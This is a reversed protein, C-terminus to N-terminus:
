KVVMKTVVSGQRRIVLQGAEPTAIRIGQLNYYIPESDSTGETLSSVGSNKNIKLAPTLTQVQAAGSEAKVSIRVDIWGETDIDAMSVNYHSGFGPTFDGEPDAEVTLSKFDKSGTPAWEVEVSAPATYDYYVFRSSSSGSTRNYKLTSAYLSMTAEAATEFRDTVTGDAAKFQMMTLTPILGAYTAADYTLTGEVLGPLENDILINNTSFNIEYVGTKGWTVADPFDKRQSCVNEGDISVTVKNTDTGILDANPYKAAMNWSDVDLSEGLRGVYGFSVQSGEPVTVLAPTCNGVIGKAPTGTFEPNTNEFSRGSQTYFFNPDLVPNLGLQKVGEPSWTVPMAKIGSDAGAVVSGTPFVVFALPTDFDEPQYFGVKGSNFGAGTIGSGLMGHWMGNFSLFYKIFTYPIEDEPLGMERWAEEDLKKVPTVAFEEDVTKWGEPTAGVETKSFDVPVISFLMGDTKSPANFMRVFQLDSEATVNTKVYNMQNYYLDMGSWYAIAGNYLIVDEADGVTGENDYDCYLLDGSPARQVIDIQNVADATDFSIEFGEGVAVNEKVLFISGASRKTVGYVFFTYTGAPLTFEEIGDGWDEGGYVEVSGDVTRVAGAFIIQEGSATTVTPKVTVDSESALRPAKLIGFGYELMRNHRVQTQDLTITKGNVVNRAAQSAVPIASLAVIMGIKSLMLKKM